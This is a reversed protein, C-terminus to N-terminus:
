QFTDLLKKMEAIQRTQNAIIHQGIQQLEKNKTFNMMNLAMRVAGGHHPIMESLFDKDVNGTPKAGEMGTVMKKFAAAYGKLYVAEQSPNSQKTSQLRVLLDKMQASAATQERVIAVAMQKVQANTGFKMVNEAMRVAGEHHPIRAHVFDIAVDGTEPANDMKNKMADLIQRYAKLYAEENTKANSDAAAAHSHATVTLMLCLVILAAYFHKMANM